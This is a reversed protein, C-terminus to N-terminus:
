WPSYRSLYAFPVIESNTGCQGFNPPLTRTTHIKDVIIFLQVLWILQAIRLGSLPNKTLKVLYTRTFRGVGKATHTERHRLLSFFLEFFQFHFTSVYGHGAISLLFVQKLFQFIQRPQLFLVPFVSRQDRVVNMRPTLCYVARNATVILSGWMEIM